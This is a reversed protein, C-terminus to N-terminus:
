GKVSEIIPGRNPLLQFTAAKGRVELIPAHRGTVQAKAPETEQNAYQGFSDDLPSEWGQAAHDDAYSSLRRM